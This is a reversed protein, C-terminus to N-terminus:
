HLKLNQNLGHVLVAALDGGHHEQVKVMSNSHPLGPLTLTLTVSQKAGTLRQQDRYRGMEFCSSWVPVSLLRNGRRGAVSM